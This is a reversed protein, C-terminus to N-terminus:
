KPLVAVSICGPGTHATMTPGIEVVAVQKKEIHLLGALKDRVQKAVILADSHAVWVESSWKHREVAKCAIRILGDMALEKGKTKEIAILKGNELGIIPKVDLMKGFFTSFMNLKGARKLWYVNDVAFAIVCENILITMYNEFKEPDKIIKSARAIKNVLLGQGISVNKTDIFTIKKALSASLMGLSNEACTYCHSLASSVHFSYIKDYKKDISEFAEAYEGPFPPSTKISANQRLYEVIEQNVVDKGHLYDKGNILIHIPVINLDLAKALGNPLDITSDVVIGIRESM